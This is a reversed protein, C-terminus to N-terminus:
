VEWIDLTKCVPVLDDFKMYIKAGVDFYWRTWDLHPDVKDRDLNREVIAKPNSDPWTYSMQTPEGRHLLGWVEINTSWDWVGLHWDQSYWPEGEKPTRNIPEENKYLRILAKRKVM